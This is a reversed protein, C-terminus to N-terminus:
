EGRKSTEPTVDYLPACEECFIRYKGVHPELRETIISMWGNPIEASSGVAVNSCSLCDCYHRYMQPVNVTAM